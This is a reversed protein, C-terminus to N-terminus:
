VQPQFISEEAERVIRQHELYLSDISNEEYTDWIDGYMTDFESIGTTNGDRGYYFLFSTKGSEIRKTLRACRESQMTGKSSWPDAPNLINIEQTAIYYLLSYATATATPTKRTQVNTKNEDAEVYKKLLEFNKITNEMADDYQIHTKNATAGIFRAYRLLDKDSPELDPKIGFKQDFYHFILMQPWERGQSHYFSHFTFEALTLEISM